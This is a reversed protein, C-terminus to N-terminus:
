RQRFKGTLSAFKSGEATIVGFKQGYDAIIRAPEYAATIAEEEASMSEITKIWKKNWEEAWGWQELRNNNM